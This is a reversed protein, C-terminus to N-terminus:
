DFIQLFSRSRFLISRADLFSSHVLGDVLSPTANKLPNRLCDRRLELLRDREEVKLMQSVPLQKFTSVYCIQLILQM